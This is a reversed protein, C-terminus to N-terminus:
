KASGSKGQKATYTLKSNSLYTMGNVSIMVPLTIRVGTVNANTAGFESLADILVTKKCAYTFKVPSSTYAGAVLKGTLKVSSIPTTGKGKGDLTLTDEFAGIMVLIESDAPSFGSPVPLTGSLSLADNDAKLFNLKLSAKTITFQSANTSASAAAGNVAVRVTDTATAVGDTVTVRADYIGAKAYVHSVSGGSGTTGDGFDWSYLLMSDDDSAEATLSVPAGAEAPNPTATPLSAFQPTANSKGSPKIITLTLVKVDGGALNTAKLTIMMVGSVTPSGSIVGNALALGDPLPTADYIPVPKGNATITYSFLQGLTATASLASTIVPPLMTISIGSQTGNISATVTDTVTLSQTAVTNFTATFHKAGKDSAVFTYDAPLAAASDTSSIHVTGNYGTAINGYHDLASVDFGGSVGSPTPSPFGKVTLTEAPGPNITLTLIASGSGGPNVATMTISYVGAINVSGSIVNGTITVGSPLNTASYSTPSENAVIAYNFNSAATSQLTAPTVTPKPPNVTINSLTSTISGTVTDTAILYTLGARDETHFTVAVTQAGANGGTFTYDAPLTAAGDSSSFHATGVYATAVNGFPDKATLTFNAAVDRTVVTPGSLVYSSAAAPNVTISQTATIVTGLLGATLSKSGATKLTVGNTFTHTGNDGAVFTYNAPVIAQADSSSFTVPGTFSTLTANASDVVTLNFNQPVGATVSSGIGSLVLRPKRIQVAASSTTGVGYGAGTSLTLTLTRDNSAATPLATINITGSLNGALISVSGSLTAIDVGNVVGTLAYNITLNTSSSRSLSVTIQGLDSASGETAVADTATVTVQPAEFERLYGDTGGIFLKGGAVSIKGGYAIKQVPVTTGLNFLYTAPKNSGSTDISSVYLMNDTVIPQWYLPQDAIYSTQWVGTAADYAQVQQGNIAYVVGNAVVPTGSYNGNVQWQKTHTALNVAYLNPSGVLYAVGNAIVADTDMSWGNWTWGLDISWNVAGTTENHEAFKGGQWEYMKGNSYTPTWEDWWDPYSIPQAFFRQSGDTQNFCYTGGYSGGMVFVGGNAVTPAHAEDWQVLYSSSWVPLGTSSNFSWLQSDTSHNCRMVYVRGSDYTPSTVNDAVTFTYRWQQAGTQVNYSALYTAGFYTRPTVFLSNGAISPQQLAQPTPTTSDVQVSWGAVLPAATLGPQYGTHAPNNGMTPYDTTAARIGGALTLLAILVVHAPQFRM